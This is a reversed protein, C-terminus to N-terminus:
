PEIGAIRLARSIVTDSLWMGAARLELLVARPDSLHGQRHATIISEAQM